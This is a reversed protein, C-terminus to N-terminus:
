SVPYFGLINYVKRYLEKDKRFLLKIRDIWNLMM